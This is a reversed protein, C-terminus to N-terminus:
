SPLGQSQLAQFFEPAARWSEPTGIDIFPAQTRLAYLGRGVLGPMVDTELSLPTTPSLEALLHREMVYIGANIDGARKAGPSQPKEVFSVVSGDSETEVVGYRSVDDRHTLAMTMQASRRDHLALLEALDVAAFSDGNAVVLRASNIFQAAQRVAGGTGLPRDERSIVLDLGAFEPRAGFETVQEAHYGTALVIRKAGWDAFYRIITGLFPRGAVDALVKQRDPVAENLRTGRGGALILVDSAFLARRPEM